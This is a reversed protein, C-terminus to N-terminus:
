RWYVRVASEQISEEFLFEASYVHHSDNGAAAVAEVLADVRIQEQDYAVAAINGNFACAVVGQTRLLSNAVRMVCRECGMGLVALYAVTANSLAAQDLPKKFPEIHCQSM